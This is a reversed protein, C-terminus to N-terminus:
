DRLKEKLNNYRDQLAKLEIAEQTSILQEEIKKRKRSFMPWTATGKYLPIAVQSIFVSLSALTGLIQFLRLYM